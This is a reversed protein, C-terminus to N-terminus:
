LGILEPLAYACPQILASLVEVVVDGLAQANRPFRSDGLQSRLGTQYGGALPVTSHQRDAPWQTSPRLQGGKQRRKNQKDAQETNVCHM